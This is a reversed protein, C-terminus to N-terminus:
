MVVCRRATLLEPPRLSASEAAREDEAQGYAKGTPRSGLCFEWWGLSREYVHVMESYIDRKTQAIGDPTVAAVIEASFATDILEECNFFSKTRRRVDAVINVDSASLIADECLRLIAIAVRFLVVRGELAFADWVKLLAESPLSDIFLTIFWSASLVMFIPCRPFESIRKYVQPQLQRTLRKLVLCDMKLAFMESKSMYYGRSYMRREVICVLMWFVREEKEVPSLATQFAEQSRAADEEEVMVLLFGAIYNMGQCYGVEPNRVSYAVLIRELREVGNLATFFSNGPFTRSMDMRIQRLVNYQYRDESAVLAEYYGANESLLESAGLLEQWRQVRTPHVYKHRDLYTKLEQFAEDTLPFGYKDRKLVVRDHQRRLEDGQEDDSSDGLDIDFFEAIGDGLDVFRGPKDPAQTDFKVGIGDTADRRRPRAM